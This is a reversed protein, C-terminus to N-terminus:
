QRCKLRKFREDVLIPLETQQKSSNTSKLFVRTGQGKEDQYIPSVRWEVGWDALDALDALDSNIKAIISTKNEETVEYLIGIDDAYAVLGDIDLEDSTSIDFDWPPASWKGHIM